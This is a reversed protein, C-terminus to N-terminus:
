AMTHVLFDSPWPQGFARDHTALYRLDVGGEVSFYFYGWRARLQSQLVQIKGKRGRDRKRERERTVDEPSSTQM